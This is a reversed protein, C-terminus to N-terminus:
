LIKVDVQCMFIRFFYYGGGHWFLHNLYCKDGLDFHSRHSGLADLMILIIVKPLNKNTSEAQGNGQPYYNSSTSMFIGHKLAWELIRAGLFAMANNSVISDPTGFRSIIDQYFNLVSTENAEKLAVEKTWKTFYATATLIWKHRASSPPNIPGIFDLGWKSFPQEVEFPHLSLAALKQKGAFLSCNKCRRVCDFADQYM